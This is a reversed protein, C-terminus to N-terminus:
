IYLLYKFYNCSMRYSFLNSHPHTYIDVIDDAYCLIDANLNLNLLGNIFIIFLISGLVTGQPVSFSNTNIDIPTREIRVQQSRNSIFYKILNLASSRIGCFDLKNILLEHNVSDFAKKFDLFIGLVKFKKVL